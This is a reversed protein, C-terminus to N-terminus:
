LQLGIAVSAGIPADVRLEMVLYKMLSLGLSLEAQLHHDWTVPFREGLDGTSRGTRASMWGVELGAFLGVLDDPNPTHIRYGGVAGVIALPAPTDLMADGLGGRARLTAGSWRDFRHEYGLALCRAVGDVNVIAEYEAGVHDGATARGSNGLALVIVAV